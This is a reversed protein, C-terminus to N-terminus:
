LLFYNYNILYLVIVFVRAFNWYVLLSFRATCHRNNSYRMQNFEYTDGIIEVVSM